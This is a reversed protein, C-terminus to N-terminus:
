VEFSKVSFVSIFASVMSCLSYEYCHSSYIQIHWDVAKNDM